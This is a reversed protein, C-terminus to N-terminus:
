QLNKAGCLKQCYFVAGRLGDMCVPPWTKGEIGPRVTFRLLSVFRLCRWFPRLNAGHRMKNGKTILNDNKCFFRLLPCIQHRKPSPRFVLQPNEYIEGRCHVCFQAPRIESQGAAEPRGPLGPALPEGEIGPRVSARSLQIVMVAYIYTFVCNPSKPAM